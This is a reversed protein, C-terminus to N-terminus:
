MYLVIEEQVNQVFIAVETSTLKKASKTQPSELTLPKIGNCTIKAYVTSLMEGIEELRFNENLGGVVDGRFM